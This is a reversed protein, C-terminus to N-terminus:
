MESRSAPFPTNRAIITACKHENVSMSYEERMELCRIGMSHPTVDVLVAGVNQGAVIAGQIAAGMAVCLDPHVERHAPQGLMSELWRGIMPTRTSCVVLVIRQIDQVNLRADELAKQVCQMTRDILPQILTEFE